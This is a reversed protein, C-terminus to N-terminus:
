LHARAVLKQYHRKPYDYVRDIEKSVSSYPLKGKFRKREQLFHRRCLYNWGKDENKKGPLLCPYVEKYPKNKCTGHYDCTKRRM